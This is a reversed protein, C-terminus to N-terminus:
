HRRPLGRYGWLVGRGGIGELVGRYQRWCVEAVLAGWFVEAEIGRGYRRKCHGRWWRVKAELTGKVLVGRDGIDLGM